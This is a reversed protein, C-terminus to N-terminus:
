ELSSVLLLLHRNTRLLRGQVTVPEAVHPLIAAGIPRRDATALLMTQAVGSADRVLLSPPIGGAICRAACDRHVKGRGPNMVGFYCKSDVIEGRFRVAGFDHEPEAPPSGPALQVSGPLIELMRDEGNEIRQGQLKVYGAPLNVAGHKGPAVLLWGGSLAPYPLKTLVGQYEGYKQFDFRSPAFPAQALVLTVAVCATLALLSAIVRLIFRRVRPPLPLYGVFFEDMAVVWSSAGM